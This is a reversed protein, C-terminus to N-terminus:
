FGLRTKKTEDLDKTTKGFDLVDRYRKRLIVYSQAVKLQKEAKLQNFIAVLGNITIISFTPVTRQVEGLAAMAIAAILYIIILLNIIPAIIVHWISKKVKQLINRGHLEISAAAQEDSLGMEVSKVSFDDYIEELPINYYEKLDESDLQNESM